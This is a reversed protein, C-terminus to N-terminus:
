RWFSASVSRAELDLATVTWTNEGCPLRALQGSVSDTAVTGSFTGDACDVDGSLRMGGVVSDNYQSLEGQWNGTVVGMEPDSGQWTGAWVGSLDPPPPEDPYTAVTADEPGCAAMLLVLAALLLAAALRRYRQSRHSNM